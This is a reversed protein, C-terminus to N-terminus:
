RGAMRPASTSRSTAPAGTPAGRARTRGPPRRATTSSRRRPRSARERRRGAPAHRGSGPEVGVRRDRAVALAGRRGLPGPARLPVRGAAGPGPGLRPADARGHGGHRRGEALPGVLAPVGPPVRDGSRARRGASVRAVVPRRAGQPPRAPRGPPAPDRELLRRGLRRHRLGSGPDARLGRLGLRPALLRRPAPPHAVTRRVGADTGDPRVVHRALRCRRHGSGAAARATDADDRGVPAHRARPRLRRHLPRRRRLPRRERVDLHRGQAGAPPARRGAPRQVRGLLDRVHRRARHVLAPGRAV